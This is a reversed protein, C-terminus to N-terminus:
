DTADSDKPIKGPWSDTHAEPLVKIKPRESSYSHIVLKEEQKTGTATPKEASKKVPAKVATRQGAGLNRRLIGDVIKKHSDSHIM